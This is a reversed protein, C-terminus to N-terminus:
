FMLVNGRQVDVIVIEQEKLSRASYCGWLSRCGETWMRDSNMDRCLSRPHVRAARHESEVAEDRSTACLRGTGALHGALWTQQGGSDGEWRGSSSRM